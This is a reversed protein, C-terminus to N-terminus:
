EKRGVGRPSVRGGQFRDGTGIEARRVAARKALERDVEVRVGAKRLRTVVQQLVYAELVWEGTSTKKAGGCNLDLDEREVIERLKEPSDSHIIIRVQSAM